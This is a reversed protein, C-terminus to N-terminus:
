GRIRENGECRSTTPGSSWCNSVDPGGQISELDATQGFLCENMLDKSFGVYMNRVAGQQEPANLQAAVANSRYTAPATEECIGYVLLLRMVRIILSCERNIQRSLEAATIPDGNRQVVADLLGMEIAMLQCMNNLPQLRTRMLYLAPGEIERQAKSLAAVLQMKNAEAGNLYSQGVNHIQDLLQAVSSPSAM